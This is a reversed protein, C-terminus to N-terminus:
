AVYIAKRMFNFFMICFMLDIKKDKDGFHHEYLKNIEQFQKPPLIFKPMREMFLLKVIKGRYIDDNDVYNGTALGIKKFLILEYLHRLIWSTNTYYDYARPDDGATTKFPKQTYKNDDKSMYLLPYQYIPKELVGPEKHLKNNRRFVENLSKLLRFLVAKDEELSNDRNMNMKQITNAAFLAMNMVKQILSREYDTPASILEIIKSMGPKKMIAKSNRCVKYMKPDSACLEKIKDLPLNPILSLKTVDLGGSLVFDRFKRLEKIRRGGNLRKEYNRIQKNLVRRSM